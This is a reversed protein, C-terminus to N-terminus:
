PGEEMRQERQARKSPLESDDKRTVQWSSRKALCGELQRRLNAIDRDYTAQMEKVKENSSKELAKMEARVAEVENQLADVEAEKEALTAATTDLREEVAQESAIAADRERQFKSLEANHAEDGRDRLNRLEAQAEELLREKDRVDRRLSEVGNTYGSRINAENDMMAQNMSELQGRLNRIELDMENIQREGAKAQQIVAMNEAMAENNRARLQGFQQNLAANEAVATANYARLEGTMQAAADLDSQLASVKRGANQVIVGVQLEETVVMMETLQDLFAAYANNLFTEEEEELKEGGGEYEVFNDQLQTAGGHIILARAYAETEGGAEMAKRLTWLARAHLDALRRVNEAVHGEM